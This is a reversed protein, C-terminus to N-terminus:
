QNETTLLAMSCGNGLHITILKSEPKGLYALLKESVYKHSTGHFGYLGINYEDYYSKPIAYLFAKEPM